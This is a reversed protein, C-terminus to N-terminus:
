LLLFRLMNALVSGLGVSILMDTTGNNGEYGCEYRHLLHQHLHISHEARLLDYNPHSRVTNEYHHGRLFRSGPGIAGATPHPLSSTNPQAGSKQTSGILFTGGVVNLGLIICNTVDQNDNLCYNTLTKSM